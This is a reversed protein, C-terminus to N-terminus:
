SWFQKKGKRYLGKIEKACRALEAQGFAVKEPNGQAKATAARWIEAEQRLNQLAESVEKPTKKM